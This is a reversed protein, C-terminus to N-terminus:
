GRVWSSCAATMGPSREPEPFAFRRLPGSPVTGEQRTEYHHDGIPGIGPPTEGERALPEGRPVPLWARIRQGITQFFWKIPVAGLDTRITRTWSSAM